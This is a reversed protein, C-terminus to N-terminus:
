CLCYAMHTDTVFLSRMLHTPQDTTITGGTALSFNQEHSYTPNFPFLTSGLSPPQFGQSSSIERTECEKQGWGVMIGGYVGHHGHCSLFTFTFPFTFATSPWFLDVKTPPIQIEHQDPFTVAEFIAEPSSEFPINFNNKSRM